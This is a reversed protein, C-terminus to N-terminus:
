IFNSKSKLVDVLMKRRDSIFQLFDAFDLKNPIHRKFCFEDENMQLQAAMEKVWQQLPANTKKINEPGDLMALNCIGNWNNPNSYQDLCNEPINRRKLEAITFWSQPHLHDKHFDRNAFDLSPYILSLIAFAHTHDKQTNLLMEIREDDLNMDQPLGLFAEVIKKAPFEIPKDEFQTRIIRLTTDSFRTRALTTVCLWKRIIERHLKIKTDASKVWTSDYKNLHIYYVLPLLQYKSNLNADSFGLREILEFCTSISKKIAFWSTEFQKSSDIGFNNVKFSIDKEFLYLYTKLVFEKDIQFTYNSFIENCLDNIVKRADSDWHSVVFSMVLDSFNLPTGNKNIRIFISLATDISQSSEVFCNMPKDKHILDFLRSVIQTPLPAQLKQNKGIYAILKNTDNIDLIDGVLFWKDQHKKYESDTLFRFIYRQGESDGDYEEDIKLYLKRPPFNEDNLTEWRAYPMHWAFTGKLGIYLSTLRQQGDLVGFFDEHGKTNFERNHTKHVEVFEPLIEYFKFKSKTDGEVRWLLLSNIPYGQMLSDFLWRIQDEWWTFERQISPLLYQKADINRIVQLITMPPQFSM